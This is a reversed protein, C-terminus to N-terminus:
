GWSELQLRILLICISLFTVCPIGSYQRAGRLMKQALDLLIVRRFAVMFLHGGGLVSLGLSSGMIKSGM